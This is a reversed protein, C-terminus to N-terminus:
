KLNQFVIHHSNLLILQTISLGVTISYIIILAANFVYMICNIIAFVINLLIPFLKLIFCKM